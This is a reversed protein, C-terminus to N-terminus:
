RCPNRSRHVCARTPSPRTSRGLRLSGSRRNLPSVRTPLCAWTGARSRMPRFQRMSGRVTPSGGVEPPPPLCPRGRRHAARWPQSPAAVRRRARPAPGPPPRRAAAGGAVFGEAAVDNEITLAAEVQPDRNGPDGPHPEGQPGVVPGVRHLQGPTREPRSPALASNGNTFNATVSSSRGISMASSGAAPRSRSSSPRARARMITTASRSARRCPAPWRRGRGGARNSRGRLGRLRREQVAYRASTSALMGSQSGGGVPRPSAAQDLPQQAAVSSRRRRAASEPASSSRTRAPSAQRGRAQRGRGLVVITSRRASRPRRRRRLPDRDAHVDGEGVGEGARGALDAREGGNPEGDVIM